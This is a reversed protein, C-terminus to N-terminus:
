AAGGRCPLEDQPQSIFPWDDAAAASCRARWCSVRTGSCGVATANTLNGQRTRRRIGTSAM